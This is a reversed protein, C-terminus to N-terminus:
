VINLLRLCKDAVDDIGSAVDERQVYELVQRLYESGVILILEHLFYISIYMFLDHPSSIAPEDALRETCASIIIAPEHGTHTNINVCATTICRPVAYVQMAAHESRQSAIAISSLEIDVLHVRPEPGLDLIRPLSSFQDDEM